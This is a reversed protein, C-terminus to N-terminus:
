HGGAVTKIYLLCARPANLGAHIRRTKATALSFVLADLTNGGSKWVLEQISSSYKTTQIFSM